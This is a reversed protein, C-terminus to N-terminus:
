AARGHNQHYGNEAEAEKRRSIAVEISKSRGLKKLKGDIRIMAVWLKKKPEFYVGQVGSTNNKPMRRNRMNESRTACRLNALRNDLPDGNIHDIHDPPMRGNVWLWIIRHVGYPKDGIEVTIYKNDDKGHLTGAAKGALRGNVSAWAANTKFDSRPREKWCLVGKEPEYDFLARVREQTLEM